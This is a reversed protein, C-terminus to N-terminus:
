LAPNGTITIGTNIATTSTTVTHRFVTDGADVAHIGRRGIFKRLKLLM